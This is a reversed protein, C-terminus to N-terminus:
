GGGGVALGAGRPDTAWSCSDESDAYRGCTIVNARGPEPVSVAASAQVPGSLARQMAVAAALPAGAQGSGGAAARFSDINANWALAASLLALPLWSPSAALVIGTGSAVRGTGFLNNMTLACVVAGGDHDMTVFTTSAPLPPLSAPPAPQALVAKADGGGQRWKAAVALARTNAQEVASPDKQLVNFAAAAALGGDAPPPLFAVQDNGVPVTLPQAFRPVAARLDAMTLAGGAGTSATELRRALAGQYMDGVGATRLQALTAALEPQVMQSGETLPQGNPVFVAAAAPDASLPGAVVQLDRVFARSAPVGFRAMQEAPVLLSEFPRHGYRAHLAFLGRALIPVSAPRDGAPQAPAAPVFMLADPVGRNPSDKGPMYALCAGGSGLSARSPMSVSLAFGLAVAADAANGGSSLVDRAVLTAQPEDAVVGGLFGQVYGPTGEQPGPGFV